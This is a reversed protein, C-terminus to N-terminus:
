ALTRSWLLFVAGFLEPPLREIQLFGMRQWFRSAATNQKVVSFRIEQAGLEQAWREFARYLGTGLGRDRHAPELLLLGLFWM